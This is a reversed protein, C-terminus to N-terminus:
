WSWGGRCRTARDMCQRRVWTRCAYRDARPQHDCWLELDWCRDFTPCREITVPPHKLGAAVGAGVYLWIAALFATVGRM